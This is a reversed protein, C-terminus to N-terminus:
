ECGCMLVCHSTPQQSDHHRPAMGEYADRKARQPKSAQVLVVLGVLAVVIIVVCGLRLRVAMTNSWICSGLLERESERESQYTHTLTVIFHLLLCHTKPTPTIVLLTNPTPTIVLLTNPHTHHPLLFIFPASSTLMSGRYKSAHM